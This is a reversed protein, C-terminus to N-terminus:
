KSFGAVLEVFEAPYEEQPLHGCRRFVVLRSNPITENLIEGNRPPIENDNEGWLLLTPQKISQAENEIRSANWNRLTLLVARHASSSRLPRHRATIREEDLVLPSGAWVDKKKQRWRSLAKSDIMFPTVLDGIVPATALRALPQQVPEDNIVAGILILKSVRRPADIACTAAVAGGYSSGVVTAKEIGLHDMLGLVLRAQSDFTYDGSRPKDSFGFGLLDPAIVRFGKEALPLFVSRWVYTSACFGHILLLAPAGTSGAEQYHVRTGNIDAFRSHTSHPIERAHDDWLIEEPRTLLKATVAAGAAVGVAGAIWYRKKM